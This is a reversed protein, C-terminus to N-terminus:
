GDTRSSLRLAIISSICLLIGVVILGVVYLISILGSRYSAGEAIITPLRAVGSAIPWFIGVGLQVFLGKRQKQGLWFLGLAQLSILISIVLALLPTPIGEKAPMGTAFDELTHPINFFFLLWAFFVVRLRWKVSIDSIVTM